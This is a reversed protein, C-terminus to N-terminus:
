LAKSFGTHMGTTATEGTYFVIDSLGRHQCLVTSHFSHSHLAGDWGAAAGYVSDSDCPRQRGRPLNRSLFSNIDSDCQIQREDIIILSWPCFSPINSYEKILIGSPFFSILRKKRCVWHWLQPGQASCDEALRGGCPSKDFRDMGCRGRVSVLVGSPCFLPLSNMFVTPLLRVSCMKYSPLFTGHHAHVWGVKGPYRSDTEGTSKEERVRYKGKSLEIWCCGVVNTDVMFRVVFFLSM